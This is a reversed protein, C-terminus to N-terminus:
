WSGSVEKSGRQGTPRIRVSASLVPLRGGHGPRLCPRAGEAQQLLDPQVLVVQSGRRQAEGTPLPLAHGDGPRQCGLRLHDDAVLRDRCQVYRDLRLHQVQQGVQLVLQPHAVQEDGVIEADDVVHAIADEHHLVAPYDLGAGRVLHELM